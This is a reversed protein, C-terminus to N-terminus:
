ARDFADGHDIEFWVGGPEPIVGWRDTLQDVIFLGYHGGDHDAVTEVPPTFAPLHDMVEVRLARPTVVAEVDVLDTAGGHVVSNSVVESVAQCAKWLAHSGLEPELEALSERVAQPAGPGGAVRFRHRWLPVTAALSACADNGVPKTLRVPRDV